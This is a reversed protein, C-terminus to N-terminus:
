AGYHRALVYLSYVVSGGNAKLRLMHSTADAVTWPSSAKSTALAVVGGTKLASGNAVTLTPIWTAYGAPNTPMVELSGDGSIKKIVIAVVQKITVLQGVGDRGLGAGIDTTDFDYLDVDETQGSAISTTKRQWARTAQNNGIGTTITFNLFTQAITAPVNTGDDLINKITSTALLKFSGNLARTGVAQDTFSCSSSSSSSVSEQSPSSSSTSSSSSSQTSSSSSSVSSLSSFSTTTCSSTVGSMSSTSAGQTSSTSSSSSSSFSSTSSSSSSSASLSSSTRAATSTSSSSSLTSSTSSSSSSQSLSSGTSTCSSATTVLASTSSSTSSSSVSTSSTSSSSMTQSSTSPSSTSVTKSSSSTSSSSMSTTTMTSTNSVSSCSTSSSSYLQGEMAGITGGDWSTGILLENTPVFGARVWAVLAAISYNSDWDSDNRKRLEALANEVTGAGGVSTDWTAVRRASDVFVPNAGDVDNAAFAETFVDKDYGKGNTGAALNYGANYDCLEPVVADTGPSAAYNQIKYGSNNATDWVLNGRFQTVTGSTSSDHRLMRRHATNSYAALKLNPSDLKVLMPGASTGGPLPLLINELFTYSAAASSYSYVLYNGPTQLPEIVSRAIELNVGSTFTLASVGTDCLIYSGDVNGLTSAQSGSTHYVMCDRVTTYCSNFYLRGECLNRNFEGYHMDTLLVPQDFVCDSIVWAGASPTGYFLLQLCIGAETLKFTTNRVSFTDTAAVYGEGYISGGSSFECHHLRLTRTQSSSGYWKIAPNVADGIRLFDTYEADIAVTGSLTANALIYANDGDANSKISCRSAATGNCVLQATNDDTTGLMLYYNATTAAQSSDFELTAGAELTLNGGGNHTYSGRVVLTKGAAITLDADDDVNVADFIASESPGVTVNQDVRVDHKVYAVDGDGPPVGGDWTYGSTWNGARATQIDAM